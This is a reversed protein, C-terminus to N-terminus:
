VLGKAVKKCIDLYKRARTNATEFERLRKNGKTILERQLKSDRIVRKIKDAIDKPNLPDFYIASDKCINTAFPLNSTLIPKKMKMAELYSVSFTELLTPFFLADSQTYLSPCSKLPIPGVNIINQTRDKFLEKFSSNDLTLIFKVNIDKLLPMVSNIIKLNKNLHNHAIFLLRFEGRNKPPLKIYFKNSEKTYIENDFISSYSNGVVSIDSERLNLTKALREKAEITEVIFYDADRKLYYSKYLRLLHMKFRKILPLEKYAISNPNYVWGDAFGMIHKTKPKWYSPGFLTFVIDPAINKELKNLYNVVRKRSSLSSPSKDILYFNFNNSFTDKNLQEDVVKSLFIHYENNSKISKLENIFSIAVQVGGGVYLNSSNILLRM